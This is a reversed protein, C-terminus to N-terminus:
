AVAKRITAEDVSLLGIKHLEDIENVAKSHCDACHSYNCDGVPLSSCEVCRGCNECIPHCPRDDICTALPKEM